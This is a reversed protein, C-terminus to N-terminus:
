AGWAVCTYATRRRTLEDSDGFVISCMGCNRPEKVKIPSHIFPNRIFSHIFSHIVFSHIFFSRPSHVVRSSPHHVDTPRAGREGLDKGM